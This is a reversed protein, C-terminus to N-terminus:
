LNLNNLLFSNILGGSSGFRVYVLFPLSASVYLHESPTQFLSKSM